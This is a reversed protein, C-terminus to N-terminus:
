SSAHLFRLYAASTKLHQIFLFIWIGRIINDLM